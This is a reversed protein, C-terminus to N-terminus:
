ERGNSKDQGPILNCVTCQLTDQQNYTWDHPPCTKVLKVILPQKVPTQKYMIFVIVIVMGIIIGM